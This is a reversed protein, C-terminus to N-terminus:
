SPRTGNCRTRARVRIRLRQQVDHGLAEAHSLAALNSVPLLEVEWNIAQEQNGAQRPEDVHGNLTPRQGALSRKGNQCIRWHRVRRGLPAHLGERLPQDPIACVRVLRWTNGELVGQAASADEHDPLKQRRPGVHRLGPPTECLGRALVGLVLPPSEPVEDELRGRPVARGGPLNGIHERLM